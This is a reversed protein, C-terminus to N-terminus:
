ISHTKQILPTKKCPYYFTKEIYFENEIYSTNQIYAAKKHPRPIEQLNKKLFTPETSPVRKSFFSQLLM